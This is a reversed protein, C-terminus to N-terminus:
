YINEKWGGGWHELFARTTAEEERAEERLKQQCKQLLYRQEMTGPIHVKGGKKKM